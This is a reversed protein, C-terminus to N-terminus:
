YWDYEEDPGEFHNIGAQYRISDALERYWNGTDPDKEQSAFYDYSEAIHMLNDYHLVLASEGENLKLSIKKKNM